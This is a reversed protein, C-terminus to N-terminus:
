RAQLSWMRSYVGGDNLLKSHTGYEVVHGDQLVFICDCDVVTSLRHAVYICTKNKAIYNLNTIIEHETTSDLSSTAEDCLIIENNALILRAIAIRQKEGGSLKIGREGVITDYSDPMQIITNHIGALIAANIVEDKTSNPKAYLINNYITDNFLCPEQPVIGILSNLTDVDYMRVDIGNLYINGKIPDVIRRLLKICTSKGSGSHGVLAVKSGLKIQLTLNNLLPRTDFSFKINEFVITDKYLNMKNINDILWPLKIYLQKQLDQDNTEKYKNLIKLNDRDLPQSINKVKPSISRLALLTGMNILSQNAERYISGVFNLPVALQLLLGNILILDGVTMTHQLIEEIGLVMIITVGVSFICNQGWNLLALSKSTMLSEINHKQLIKGYKNCELEINNFSQVTEYNILADYAVASAQNDLQNVRKHFKSRWRTVIITYLIYTSLTICTVISYITGCKTQLIGLVLSIELSTPLVNFIQANLLFSISRQGRDIAHSLSGTSRHSHFNHDLHLQHRQSDVAINFLSKITVHAFIATRLENAQSSLIRAAGYFIVQGFPSILQLSSPITTNITITNDQVVAVSDVVHKFILPISVNLLKSLIQCCIAILVRTRTKKDKPWIYKILFKGADKFSIKYNIDVNGSALSEVINKNNTSNTNNYKINDIKNFLSITSKYTFERYNNKLLLSNKIYTKKNQFNIGNQAHGFGRLIKIQM